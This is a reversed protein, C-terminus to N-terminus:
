RPWPAPSSTAPVPPCARRPRSRHAHDADDDATAFTLTDAVDLSVMEADLLHYGDDRVGTVRLELTLKAHALQRGAGSM